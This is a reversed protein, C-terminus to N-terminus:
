WYTGFTGSRRNWRDDSQWYPICDNSWAPRCRTWITWDPGCGSAISSLIAVMDAFWRRQRFLVQASSFARASSPVQTKQLYLAPGANCALWTSKWQPRHSRRLDDVVDYTDCGIGKFHSIAAQNLKLDGSFIGAMMEGTEKKLAYNVVRRGSDANVSLQFVVCQNEKNANVTSMAALTLAIGFRSM